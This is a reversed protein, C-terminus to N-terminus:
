CFIMNREEQEAVLTLHPWSAAAEEEWPSASTRLIRLSEPWWAQFSASVVVVLGAIPWM